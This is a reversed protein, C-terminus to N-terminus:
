VLLMVIENSKDRKVIGSANQLECKWWPEEVSCECSTRNASEKEKEALDESECQRMTQREKGKESIQMRM